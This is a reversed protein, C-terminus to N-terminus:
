FGGGLWAIWYWMTLEKYGTIDWLLSTWSLIYLMLSSYLFTNIILKM